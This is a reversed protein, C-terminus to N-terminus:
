YCVLIYESFQHKRLLMSTKLFGVDLFLQDVVYIRLLLVNVDMQVVICCASCSVHDHVKLRIQSFRIIFLVGGRHHQPGLAISNAITDFGHMM